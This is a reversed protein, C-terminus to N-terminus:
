GGRWTRGLVESRPDDVLERPAGRIGQLISEVIVPKAAIGAAIAREILGKVWAGELYTEPGMPDDVLPISYDGTAHWVAEELGDLSPRTSEYRAQFEWLGEEVRETLPRISTSAGM